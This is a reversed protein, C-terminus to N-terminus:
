PPYWTCLTQSPLNDIFPVSSLSYVTICKVRWCRMMCVYNEILMSFSSDIGLDCRKQYYKYGAV